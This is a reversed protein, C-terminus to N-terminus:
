CTAAITSASTIVGCADTVSEGTATGINTMVTVGVASVVLLAVGYEVMSAGDENKLFSKMKRLLM